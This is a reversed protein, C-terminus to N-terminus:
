RGGPHRSKMRTSCGRRQCHLDEIEGARCRNRSMSTHKGSGEFSFFSKNKPIKPVSSIFLVWSRGPPTTAPITRPDRRKMPANIEVM